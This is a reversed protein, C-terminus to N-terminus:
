RKKNMRILASKGHADLGEMEAFSVIDPIEKQIAKEQYNLISTRRFFSEVTLGSFYRASGATPLVHSPGAVFDGAPEPTWRGIFIAGAAKIKKATNWPNGCMIELHEPAYRNAIEVAEALTGLEIIFVGNELVKKVAELRGLEASQKKLEGLVAGPLKPNISLLVAQELGSGHEAQSLMDAAIFPADKVSDAIIMIESPGAIMDIAVQGYVLKKAATVYANGPGVIKEVKKVTKTGYALAAIGYVGGLRYIETVGAKKMAYLVAPHIKGDKGPPTVAVIEKVGAAKAIAATHIVTSVLPATGGPIYVGVRDLPGFKEGLFVGDRPSFTWNEPLREAAFLSVNRVATDIAKRSKADLTAVAADIERKEVGMSSPSLKVKDFRLAYKILAADGKKRVDNIIAKVSDEIEPPYGPREYLSEMLKGFNKQGSKIIRM